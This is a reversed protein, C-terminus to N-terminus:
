SRRKTKVNIGLIGGLVSLVLFILSNGIRIGEGFILTIVLYVVVFLVGAWFGKLFGKQKAGKAAIFGCLFAAIYTLIGSVWPIAGEPLYFFHFVLASLLIGAFLFLWAVVTATIIRKSVSAVGEKEPQNM